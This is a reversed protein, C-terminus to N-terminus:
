KTTAPQTPITAKKTYRRNLVIATIWIPIMIPLAVLGVIFLAMGAPGDQGSTMIFQCVPFLTVALWIAYAITSALLIAIPIRYRLKAALVLSVLLPTSSFIWSSFIVQFRDHVAYVSCAMVAVPLVIAAILILGTAWITITRLNM